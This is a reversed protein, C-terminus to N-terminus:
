SIEECVEEVLTADFFKELKMHFRNPITGNTKRVHNVIAHKSNFFNLIWAKM